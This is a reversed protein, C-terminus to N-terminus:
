LEDGVAFLYKKVTIFDGGNAKVTAEAARRSTREHIKSVTALVGAHKGKTVLCKAKEELKYVGSVKQSPIELKVTDGVTYEEGGVMSRGDHFGLQTKNGKLNVKSKIKCLKYKAQAESIEQLKMRSKEDVVVRYYKSMAPISIVDMLGVPFKSRKVKRNDVLIGGERIIKRAEASDAGLELIEKVLTVLPVSDKAPHPGAIPRAIWVENKRAVPLYRPAAIRKMHNSIGKRAM